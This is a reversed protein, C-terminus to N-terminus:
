RLLRRDLHDLAKKMDERAEELIFELDDSM